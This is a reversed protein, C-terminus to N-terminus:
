ESTYTWLRVYLTGSAPLNNVTVSTGTVVNEDRLNGSGPDTTGAYLDYYTAGAV